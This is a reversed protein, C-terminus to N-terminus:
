PAIMTPQTGARALRTQAPIPLSGLPLSGALIAAVLENNALDAADCYIALASAVDGLRELLYGQLLGGMLIRARQAWM